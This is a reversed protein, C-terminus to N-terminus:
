RNEVEQRLQLECAEGAALTVDHVFLLASGQYVRELGHQAMSITEIPTRWVEAAPESEFRTALGRWADVVDIRSVAPLSGSSRLRRDALTRGPVEFWRDPADGALFNVGMEIGFRVTVTQAAESRLTYRAVLASGDLRLRKVVRVLPDGPLCLPVARELRVGGPELTWGYPRAALRGLEPLAALAFDGVTAPAALWHDICSGRRYADYVLEGGGNGAEPGGTAAAHLADRVADHYTEERRALLDLLNFRAARADLEFVAGGEDPKVVAVLAASRLMVEPLGDADADLVQPEAGAEGALENEAAIVQEYIAARLHPSYLGGFLGHWYACNCQARWVADRARVFRSSDGNSAALGAEVAHSQRLMRKHMWNSEPYRALFGRWSGGRLQSALAGDEEGALRARTRQLRRQSEPPLAWEMMEAYAAAPLYVRRRPPTRDICEAFTRVRLWDANEELAAFFRDLWRERYCLDHTGTWTGFKEGDDAYVFLPPAPGGAAQAWAALEQLIAEPPAFPVMERLQRRIAFVRLARGEEETVFSGDLERAPVGAAEFHADDVLTFDLGACALTAVLQPEWVREAIWAGRPTVGFREVLFQNLLAIQGQRDHEPIAPLFPEYYAGGLLEIQGRAVLQAISEVHAPHHRVLWEWLIGSQHLAIRVGPHAQLVELFPRYALEYASEIVHDFNGVPQHNHVAFILEVPPM